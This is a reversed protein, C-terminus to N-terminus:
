FYDDYTLKVIWFDTQPYWDKELKYYQDDVALIFVPQDSGSAIYENLYPLQELPIDLTKTNPIGLGQLLEWKYYQTRDMNPTLIYLEEIHYGTQNEIRMLNTSKDAVPLTPIHDHSLVVELDDLNPYWERYYVRNLADQAQVHFLRKANSLIAEGLIAHEVLSLTVTDEPFLVGDRLLNYGLDDSAAMDETFIDLYTIITNTSNRVNLHDPLEKEVSIEEETAAAEPPTFVPQSEEDIEAIKSPEAAEISETTEVICPTIEVFKMEKTTSCSILILISTIILWFSNRKM